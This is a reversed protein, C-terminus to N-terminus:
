PNVTVIVTTVIKFGGPKVPPITDANYSVPTSFDSENGAGDYATAAYYYLGDSINPATCTLATVSSCVKPLTKTFTSTTSQYVNYGVAEPSANWGFTISTAAQAQSAFIMMLVFIATLILKV